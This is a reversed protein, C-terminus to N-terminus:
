CGGRGGRARVATARATVFSSWGSRSPEGMVPRPSGLRRELQREARTVKRKGLPSRGRGASRAGEGSTRAGSRKAGNVPGDRGHGGVSEVAVQFVSLSPPAPARRSLGRQPVVIALPRTTGVFAATGPTSWCLMSAVAEYNQWAVTWRTKLHSEPGHHCHPIGPLPGSWRRGFRRISASTLMSISSAIWPPRRRPLSWPGVAAALLEADSPWDSTPM